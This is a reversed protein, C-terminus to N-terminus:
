IKILFFIFSCFALGIYNLSYDIKQVEFPTTTTDYVISNKQIDNHINSNVRVQNNSNSISNINSSNSTNSTNSSIDRKFKQLTTPPLISDYLTKKIDDSSINKKSALTTVNNVFM